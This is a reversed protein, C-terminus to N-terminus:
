SRAVKSDKSSTAGKVSDKSSKPKKEKSEKSKRPPKIRLVKALLAAPHPPSYNSRDTVWAVQMLAVWGWWFQPPLPDILLSYFGPAFLGDLVQMVFDAPHAFDGGWVLPGRLARPVDTIHRHLFARVGFTKSDIYSLGDHLLLGVTILIFGHWWVPMEADAPFIRKLLPAAAAVLPLVVAWLKALWGWATRLDAPVPNRMVRPAAGLLKDLGFFAFRPIAWSVLLTLYTGGGHWLLTQLLAELFSTEKLEWDM